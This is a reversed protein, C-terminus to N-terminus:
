SRGASPDVRGGPEVAVPEDGRPPPAVDRRLVSVLIVALAVVVLLAAIADFARERPLTM